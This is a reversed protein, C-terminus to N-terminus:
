GPGEVAYEVEGAGGDGRSYLGDKSLGGVVCSCGLGDEVCNGGEHCAGARRGDGVRGVISIRSRWSASGAVEAGGSGSFGARLAWNSASFLRKHRRASVDM